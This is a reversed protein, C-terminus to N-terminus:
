KSDSSNLILQVYVDGMMADDRGIAYGYVITGNYSSTASEIVGDFSWDSVDQSRANGADQIKQVRTLTVQVVEGRDLGVPIVYPLGQAIKQEAEEMDEVVFRAEGIFVRGQSASFGMAALEPEPHSM